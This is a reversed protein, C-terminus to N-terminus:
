CPFSVLSLVCPFLFFFSLSTSFPLICKSLLPFSVSPIFSSIPILSITLSSLLSCFFFLTFFLYLSLFYDPLLLPHSLFVLFSRSPGSHSSLTLPFLFFLVPLFLYLSLFCNLLPLLSLHLSSSTYSPSFVTLSSLFTFFFPSLYFPCLITLSFSLLLFSLQFFFHSALYVM